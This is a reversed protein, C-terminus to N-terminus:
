NSGISTTAPRANVTQTQEIGGTFETTGDSMYIHAPTNSGDSLNTLTLIMSQGSLGEEATTNDLNVKFYVTAAGLTPTVTKSGSVSGEDAYTSGDMSYKITPTASGITNTFAFDFTWDSYLGDSSIKYIYEDSGYNYSIATGTATLAIEPACRDPNDSDADLEDVAAFIVDFANVPQIAVAKINECAGDNEKIVLYYTNGVSAPNWVLEIGTEGVEATNYTAGGTVTFDSTSTTPTTLDSSSTSIWWTYISSEAGSNPSGYTGNVWYQHTSGIEPATGTGQAFVNASIATLLVTAFLFVLKKM